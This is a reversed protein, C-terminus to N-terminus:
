PFPSGLSWATHTALTPECCPAPRQPPLAPARTARRAGARVEQEEEGLTVIEEQVVQDEVRADRLLQHLADPLVLVEVRLCPGPSGEGCGGRPVCPCLPEPVDHPPIPSLSPALPTLLVGGVGPMGTGEGQLYLRRATKAAVSPPMVRTKGLLHTDQRPKRPWGRTTVCGIASGPVLSMWLRTQEKGPSRIVPLLFRLGEIGAEVAPAQIVLAVDEFWGVPVTLALPTGCPTGPQGQM